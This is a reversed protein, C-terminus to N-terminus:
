PMEYVTFTYEDVWADHIENFIEIAEEISKYRGLMGKSKDSRYIICDDQVKIECDEFNVSLTGDQSIIRM